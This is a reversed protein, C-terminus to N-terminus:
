LVYVLETGTVAGLEGGVGVGPRFCVFSDEVGMVFTQLAGRRVSDDDQRTPTGVTDARRDHNELGVRFLLGAAEPGKCTLRVALCFLM